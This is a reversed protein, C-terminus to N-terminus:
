LIVDSTVNRWIKRDNSVALWIGADRREYFLYWKGNEIWITPTGYPGRSIPNGDTQRIDLAGEEKWNIGDASTLMHAIDNKGEAFM